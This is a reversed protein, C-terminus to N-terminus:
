WWRSRPGSEAHLSQYCPLRPGILGAGCETLCQLPGESWRRCPSASTCGRGNASRLYVDDILSLRVKAEDPAHRDLRREIINAHELMYWLGKEHLVASVARWIEWPLTIANM